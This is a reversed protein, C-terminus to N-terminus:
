HIKKTQEILDDVEKVAEIAEGLSVHPKLKHLTRARENVSEEDYERTVFLATALRELEAVGYNSIKESIFAIEGSYMSSTKPYMENLKGSSLGPYNSPGFPYRNRIELIMNGRMEGLEDRLEFSFPGHKYLIYDFGLPVGLLEQLFYVSKQIHTEGCWSGNDKMKEVLSLLVVQRKGGSLSM